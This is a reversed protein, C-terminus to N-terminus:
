GSDRPEGNRPTSASLGNLEFQLREVDLKFSGADAVGEYVAPAGGDPWVKQIARELVDRAKSGRFHKNFPTLDTLVVNAIGSSVGNGRDFLGLDRARRLYAVAAELQGMRCAIHLPLWGDKTAVVLMEANCRALLWQQVRLLGYKACTHSPTDFSVKDQQILLKRYAFEAFKPDEETLRRIIDRLENEMMDCPEVRVYERMFAVLEQVKAALPHATAAPVSVSPAARTPMARAGAAVLGGDGSGSGTMDPIAAAAGTAAVVEGAAPRKARHMKMRDDDDGQTAAEAAGAVAAFATPAASTTAAAVPQLEPARWPLGAAPEAAMLALPSPQQQHWQQQQQHLHPHSSIATVAGGGGGGAAAAASRTVVWTDAESAECPLGGVEPVGASALGGGGGGAAAIGDKEETAGMFQGGSYGSVAPHWVAQLSTGSSAATPAEASIGPPAATAAMAGASAAYRATLAANLEPECFAMPGVAPPQPLMVNTSGGYQHQSEYCTSSLTYSNDSDSFFLGQGAAAGVVYGYPQQQQQGVPGDPVPGSPVEQQQRTTPRWGAAPGVTGHAPLASSGDDPASPAAALASAGCLNVGSLRPTLPVMAPAAPPAQVPYLHHHQHQQQYQQPPPSQRQQYQHHHHQQQEAQQTDPYCHYDRYQTPAEQFPASPPLPPPALAEAAAPAAAVVAALSPPEGVASSLPWVHPPLAALGGQQQQQQQQQQRGGVAPRMPHSGSGGAAAVEHYSSGSLNPSPDKTPSPTAATEATASSPRPAAEKKLKRSSPANVTYLAPWWAAWRLKVYSGKSSRLEFVGSGWDQPDFKAKTQKNKRTWSELDEKVAWGLFEAIVVKDVTQQRNKLSYCYKDIVYLDRPGAGNLGGSGATDPDSGGDADRGGGLEPHLLQRQQEIAAAAAAAGPLQIRSARRQKAGGTSEMSRTGFIWLEAPGIFHLKKCRPPGGAPPGLPGGAPHPHPHPRGGDVGSMPWLYDLLVEPLSTQAGTWFEDGGAHHLLLRRQLQQQQGSVGGEGRTEKWFEEAAEVTHIREKVERWWDLLVADRRASRWEQEVGEAVVTVVAPREGYSGASFAVAAAPYPLYQPRYPAAAEHQSILPLAILAELDEESTVGGNDADEGRYHQLLIRLSDGDGDADGEAIGRLNSAAPWVHSAPIDQQSGNGLQLQEGDVKVGETPVGLSFEEIDGLDLDDLIDFSLPSTLM